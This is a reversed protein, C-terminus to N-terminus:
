WSGYTILGKNYLARIRQRIVPLALAYLEGKGKALEWRYNGLDTSVLTFDQSLLGTKALIGVLLEAPHCGEPPCTLEITTPQEM